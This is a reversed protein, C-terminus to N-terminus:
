ESDQNLFTSKIEEETFNCSTILLKGGKRVLDAAHKAYLLRNSGTSLCIADFTGKDMVIDWEGLRNIQQQDLVDLVDFSVAECDKGRSKAINYSLKISAPSYDVGKLYQGDYGNSVLEFLLHGNGTGMDLVSPGSEEPTANDLAWDVMKEVSDEGFWIEGEEGIEEFNNVEREYVDDWHEKTGLRSSPLDEVQAM